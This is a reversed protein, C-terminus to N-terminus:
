DLKVMTTFVPEIIHKNPIRSDQLNQLKIVASSLNGGLM